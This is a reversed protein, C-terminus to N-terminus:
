GQIAGSVLAYILIALVIATILVYTRDREAAFGVLSFAVRVIPTALLLLVGLQIVSRARLAFAGSLIEGIKRNMAPEGSFHRYDVVDGGHRVLYLIGGLFVVTGAIIVGTRLIFSVAMEISHDTVKRM